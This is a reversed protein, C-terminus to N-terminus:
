LRVAFERERSMFLLGGVVCTSIAWAAGGLM